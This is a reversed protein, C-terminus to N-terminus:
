GMPDIKDVDVFISLLKAGTLFGVSVGVASTAFQFGIFVHILM